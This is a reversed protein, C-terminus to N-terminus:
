LRSPVEAADAALYIKTAWWWRSGRKEIKIAGEKVLQEVVDFHSLLEDSLPYWQEDLLKVTHFHRKAEDLIREEKSLTLVPFVLKGASSLYGGAQSLINLIWRTGDEGAESHIQPPYWRSTRAIREAMGSVDEVILDFKMGSWPEFLSGCRCEVRVNCAEANSQALRVATESIDSACVSGNPAVYKALAIAVIGCGCGLDLVRKPASDFNKRVAHLLLVTTSTPYFVDPSTAVVISDRDGLKKDKYEFTPSPLTTM